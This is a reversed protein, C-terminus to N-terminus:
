CRPQEQANLEFAGLAVVVRKLLPRTPLEPLKGCKERPNLGELRLEASKRRDLFVRGLADDFYRACILFVFGAEQIAAYWLRFCSHGRAHSQLIPQSTSVICIKGAVSYIADPRMEEADAQDFRHIFGPRLIWRTM